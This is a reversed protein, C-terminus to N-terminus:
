DIIGQYFNLNLQAIVEQSFKAKVRSRAKLGMERRLEPSILFEVLRQAYFNHNDPSVTFGTEGEVMVENAWGIDSTVLAKEMAMAEIWTMPLAEAYSPLAIVTAKAIESRMLAYELKGLFITQKKAKLSLREMMLEKTSRATKIDRTDVGALYLKIEPLKEVVQNFIEILDLVGKKRILTGFYLIQLPEEEEKEPVFYDLNVANPIITIKSQLKFLQRTRVATFESVSVFHDAGNLAFKELWYNKFKQKRGELECFYADTGHFRLVLPCKFSMFATIGSWDPAEIADIRESQIIKNIYHQVHKKYFFWSLVPYKLQEIFYVTVGDEEIVKGLKQSILFVSVKVNQSVLGLAMNKMSTGIGGYAGTGSIPYETTILGIHM